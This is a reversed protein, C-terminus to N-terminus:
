DQHGRRSSMMSALVVSITLIVAITISISISDPKQALVTLM